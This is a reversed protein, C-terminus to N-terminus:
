KSRYTKKWWIIYSELTPYYEKFWPYEEVSAYWDAIAEEKTLRFVYDTIDWSEFVKKYAKGNALTYDLDSNLKRRVKRNAFTRKKKKGSEKLIPTKRYSRSM